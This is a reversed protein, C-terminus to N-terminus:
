NMNYLGPRSREGKVHPRRHAVYHDFAARQGGEGFYDMSPKITSHLFLLLVQITRSKCGVIPVLSTAMLHTASLKMVKKAVTMFCIVITALHIVSVSLM